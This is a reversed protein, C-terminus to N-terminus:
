PRSPKSPMSRPAPGAANGNAARQLAASTTDAHPLSASGTDNANSRANSQDLKGVPNDTPLTSQTTGTKAQYKDAADSDARACAAVLLAAPILALTLSSRHTTLM